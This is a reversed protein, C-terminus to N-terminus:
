HHIPFTSFHESESEGLGIDLGHSLQHILPLSMLLLLILLPLLVVNATVSVKAYYYDCAGCNRNIVHHVNKRTVLIKLALNYIAVQHEIAYTKLERETKDQIKPTVSWRLKEGATWSCVCQSCADVTMSKQKASLFYPWLALKGM